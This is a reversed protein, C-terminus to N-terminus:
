DKLVQAVGADFHIGTTSGPTITEVTGPHNQKRVVFRTDDNLRVHYHTDTGSYIIEELTGVLLANQDDCLVAHEPRVAATAHEARTNTDTTRATTTVGSALQITANNHQDVSM